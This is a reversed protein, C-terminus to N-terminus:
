VVVHNPRHSGVQPVLCRLSMMSPNLAHSMTVDQLLLCIEESFGWYTMAIGSWSSLSSFRYLFPRCIWSVFDVQLYVKGPLVAGAKESRYRIASSVDVSMRIYPPGNPQRSPRLKEESAFDLSVAITALYKMRAGRLLYSSVSGYKRGVCSRENPEARQMNTVEIM